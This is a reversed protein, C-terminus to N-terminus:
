FCAMAKAKASPADLPQWPTSWISIAKRSTFISVALGQWLPPRNPRATSIGFDGSNVTLGGSSMAGTVTGPEGAGARQSWQDRPKARPSLRRLRHGYQDPLARQGPVYARVVQDCASATTLDVSRDAEHSRAYNGPRAGWDPNPVAEFM